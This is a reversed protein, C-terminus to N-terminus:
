EEAKSELAKIKQSQMSFLDERKTTWFGRLLAYDLRSIGDGQFEKIQAKKNEWDEETSSASQQDYPMIMHKRQMKYMLIQPASM